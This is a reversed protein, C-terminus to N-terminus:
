PVNPVHVEHHLVMPEQGDRRAFFLDILVLNNRTLTVGSSTFPASDGDRLSSAMVSRQVSPATEISALSPLASQTFDSYDSFRVLQYPPQAGEVCWAVPTSTLYYRPSPSQRNLGVPTDFDILYHQDESSVMGVEVRSRNESTPSFIRAQTNAGIFVYLGEYDSETLVESPNGAAVSLNIARSVPLPRNAQPTELYVGSGRIPIFEICRGGAEIGAVPEFTRASGPLSNRLERSLREVAFRSQASLQERGVVDTFIQAGFGLYAFTGAGVIGLLVIVIVLEVLTFGKPRTSRVIM